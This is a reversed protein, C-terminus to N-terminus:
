DKPIKEMGARFVLETLFGALGLMEGDTLDYKEQVQDLVVRSDGTLEHRRNIFEAMVNVMRADLSMFGEKAEKQQGSIDVSRPRDAM